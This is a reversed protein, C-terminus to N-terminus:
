CETFYISHGSLLLLRYKLEEIVTQDYNYMSRLHFEANIDQSHSLCLPLIIASKLYIKGEFYSIVLLSFNDFLLPNKAQFNTLFIELHNMPSQFNLNMM